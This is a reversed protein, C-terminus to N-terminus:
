NWSTETMLAFGLPIAAISILLEMFFGVDIQLLCFIAQLNIYKNCYMRYLWLCFSHCSGVVCYDYGVSTTMSEDTVFVNRFLM